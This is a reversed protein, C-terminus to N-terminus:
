AKLLKDIIIGPDPYKQVLLELEHRLKENLERIKPPISEEPNATLIDAVRKRAESGLMFVADQVTGGKTLRRLTADTDKAAKQKSTVSEHVMMMFEMKERDPLQDLLVDPINVDMMLAMRCLSLKFRNKVADVMEENAGIFLLISKLKAVAGRYADKEYPDALGPDWEANHIDELFLTEFLNIFIPMKRHIKVTEKLKELIGAAGIYEDNESLDQLADQVTSFEGFEEFEEPENNLYAEILEPDQQTRHYIFQARDKNLKRLQALYESSNERPGASPSKM